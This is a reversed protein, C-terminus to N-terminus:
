FTAGSFTGALTCSEFADDHTHAASYAYELSCRNSRRSSCFSDRQPEWFAFSVAYSIADDVTFWIACCHTFCDSEIVAL